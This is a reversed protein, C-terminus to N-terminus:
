RGGPQLELTDRQSGFRAWLRGPAGAMPRDLLIWHPDSADASLPLAMVLRTGVVLATQRGSQGVWECPAAMPDECIARDTVWDVEAIPSGADQIVQMRLVLAGSRTRIRPDNRVIRWHGQWPGVPREQAREQASQMTSAPEATAPGGCLASGILWGALASAPIRM